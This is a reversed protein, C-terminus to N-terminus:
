STMAPESITMMVAPRGRLGPMLRMSRMSVFAFIMRETASFMAFCAGSAITMLTAFGRSSIVASACSTVPNGYWRTMPWAPMSSVARNVCKTASSRPTGTAETLVRVRPECPSVM